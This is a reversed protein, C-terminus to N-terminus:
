LLTLQVPQAAKREARIVAAEAKEIATRLADEARMRAAGAEIENCRYCDAEAAKKSRFVRQYDECQPKGAWSMLGECVWYKGVKRVEFPKYALGTM